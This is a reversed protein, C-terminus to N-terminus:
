RRVKTGGKKREDLATEFAKAGIKHVADRVEFETQGLLQRDPKSALMEALDRLEADTVRRLTQFIREALESQEPTLSFRSM